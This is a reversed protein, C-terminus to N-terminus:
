GPRKHERILRVFAASMAGALEVVDTVAQDPARGPVVGHAFLICVVRERLVVPVAVVERGPAAGVARFFREQVVGAEPPVGLFATADESVTRLVSPQALPVVISEVATEALAGGFGRHGLALDDKIVLVAGGAFSERLLAAAADAIADRDGAAAIRALAVERGLPRSRPTAARPTVAPREGTIRWGDDVTRAPPAPAPAPAAPPEAPPPRLHPSSVQSPDRAVGTDDLDVLTLTGLELPDTPDLPQALIPGTEDFNVDFGDDAGDDAGPPARNAYAAAVRPALAAECAVAAVVPVGAAQSMLDIAAPDGPDRMCVVLALGSGTRTMAVPLAVFRRALDAPLRGILTPDRDDLHRELAAPVGHQRALARAIADARVLGRQYLVSGLRAAAPPSTGTAAAAARAARQEALALEVESAAIVGDGLLLEGIRM